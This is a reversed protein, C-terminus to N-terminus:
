IRTASDQQSTNTLSSSHSASTHQSNASTSRSSQSSSSSDSTNDESGDELPEEGDVKEPLGNEKEEEDDMEVEEEGTKLNIYVRGRFNEFEDGNEIGPIFRDKKMAGKDKFILTKENNHNSDVPESWLELRDCKMYAEPKVFKISSFHVKLHERLFHLQPVNYDCYKCTYAGGKTNSHCKVHSNVGDKRNNAYPCHPCRSVVDSNSTDRSLNKSINRTQMLMMTQQDAVSIKLSKGSREVIPSEPIEDDRDEIIPEDGHQKKASDNIKHKKVHQSYNAFYKVSYDCKECNYRQRSGHLSLHIKYQERKEFASPCKHCKYRKERLRGNKMYTPYVFDPNGFILSGFEPDQQNPAPIPKQPSGKQAETKQKFLETGSTPVESAKLPSENNTHVTEHRMLNGYTKVAYDCYKCKHPGPGGHLSQHYELALEKFFEAPCKDCSLPKKRKKEKVKEENEKTEEPEEVESKVVVWVSESKWTWGSESPAGLVVVVKPKPYSKDVPYIACLATTREQYEDTHVKIHAILHQKQRATYSCSDCKFPLTLDHFRLHIIIEKVFLFRAPCVPCFHLSLGDKSDSENGENEDDGEESKPKVSSEYEEVKRKMEEIQEEDPKKHDVVGCVQGFFAQHVKMHSSLVGANNCIYNCDPCHHQIPGSDDSQSQAGRTSHMKEHEQINTKRMNVHPCYRCKFMKSIGLSKSVWVMPIDPFDSTNIGSIDAAYLEAKKLAFTIDPSSEPMGRGHLRVHLSLIINSYASYNCKFCKHLLDKTHWQRHYVLQQHTVGVYPCILCSYVVSKKGEEAAETAEHLDLHEMLEQSNEAYFSCFQCKINSGQTVFHREAHEELKALSECSYPCTECMFDPCEVNTDDELYPPLNMKTDESPPEDAPSSGGNQENTNTQSGSKDNMSRYHEKVHALVVGRDSNRFLCKKCKWMTKKNESFVKKRPSEDDQEDRNEVQRKAAPKRSESGELGDKAVMKRPQQAKKFEEASITILYKNYKSYNRRGAEDTLLVRAKEHASDRMQKLRIHKTIDWRWNSSYHCLSCQFPRKNLHGVIHVHFRSATSAWFSCSPCKFVKRTTERPPYHPQPEEFRQQSGNVLQIPYALREREEHRQYFNLEFPVPGKVEPNQQFNNWVFVKNEMPHAEQQEEDNMAKPGLDDIDEPEKKITPFTPDQNNQIATCSQLHLMLDTSTKCRHRCHQCRTSSLEGQHADDDGESHCKQHKLHESLCKSEFGCLNCSLDRDSSNTMLKEKLKDFFSANKRKFSEQFKHDDFPIPSTSKSESVSGVSPEGPAFDQLSSNSYDNGDPLKRESPPKLVSQGQIPILNPIPRAARKSNNMSAHIDNMTHATVEHRQVEGLNGSFECVKCKYKQIQIFGPPPSREPPMKGLPVLMQRTSLKMPPQLPHQIPMEDLQTQLFDGPNEMQDMVGERELRLLDLEDQDIGDEETMLGMSDSAGVRLRRRNGSMSLHGVPPVHHNMEHVTLSQKIDAAFNCMVCKFAGDGQHNKNHRDLNWKYPTKFDCMDCKIMPMSHYKVHKTYRAKMHTMYNCKNCRFFKKKLHVVREHRAVLMQSKSTMDCVSCKFIPTGDPAFMPEVREEEEDPDMEPVPERMPPPPSPPIRRIRGAKQKLLRTKNKGIKKKGMVHVMHIHRQLKQSHKSAYLCHPCEFIKIKEKHVQKQHYLYFRPNQTYYDCSSCSYNRKIKCQPLEAVEQEEGEGSGADNSVGEGEQSSENEEADDSGGFVADVSKVLTSEGDRSVM